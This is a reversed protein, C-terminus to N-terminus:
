SKINFKLKFSMSGIISKSPLTKRKYIKGMLQMITQVTRAQDEMQTSLLETPEQVTQYLHIKFWCSLSLMHFHYARM